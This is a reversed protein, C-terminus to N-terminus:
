MEGIGIKNLIEDRLLTALAIKKLMLDIDAQNREIRVVHLQAAVNHMLPCYTAWYGHSAGAAEIQAMQQWYYAPMSSKLDDACNIAMLYEVHTKARPCKVDITGGDSTIGDPTAGWSGVIIFKQEDGTKDVDIGTVIEFRSIARAELANGRRMDVSIFQTTYEEDAVALLEVAKEMAYTKAGTSLSDDSMSARVNRIFADAEAVTKFEVGPHGEVGYSGRTGTREPNYSSVGAGMLRHMESATFRGIRDQSLM